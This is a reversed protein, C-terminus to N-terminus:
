LAESSHREEILLEGLQRFKAYDRRASRVIALAKYAMILTGLAFERKLERELEEIAREADSFAQELNQKKTM